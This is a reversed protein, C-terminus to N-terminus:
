AAETGRGGAPGDPEEDPFATAFEAGYRDIDARVRAGAGYLRPDRRILATIVASVTTHEAEARRKLAEYDEDPIRLSINKSM